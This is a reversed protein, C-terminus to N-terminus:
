IEKGWASFIDAIMSARNAIDAVDKVIRAKVEDLDDENWGEGESGFEIYIASEIYGKLSVVDESIKGLLKLPDCDYWGGKEHNALLRKAMEEGLSEILRRYETFGEMYTMPKEQM